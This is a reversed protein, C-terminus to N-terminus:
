AFLSSLLIFYSVLFFLISVILLIGDRCCLSIGLLLIGLAPIDALFPILGLVPITLALFLSILPLFHELADSFLYPLRPKIIKDIRKTIPKSREITRELKKRTIKIKRIKEPLWVRKKGVLIQVSTIMILIASIAPVGPIAGTPLVIISSLGVLLAGFGRSNLKELIEDITIKPKKNESILLDLTATLTTKNKM